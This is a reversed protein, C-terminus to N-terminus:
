QDVGYAISALQVSRERVGDPWSVSVRLSQLRGEALRSGRPRQLPRAEVSWRFGGATEGTEILGQRPVQSYNARVSRALEVAYAYREDTRLNRTAGGAAQYMAGLALGLIVMAVLMELLSFGAVARRPVIQKM